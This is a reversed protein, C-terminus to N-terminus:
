NSFFGSFLLLPMLILPGVQAASEASEFISSIFYGLSSASMALFLLIAYFNFFQEVTNSLGVGWYIIVEYLLPLLIILPIEVSMKALYYASVSYM